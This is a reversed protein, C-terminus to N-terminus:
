CWRLKFLAAIDPKSVWVFHATWYHYEDADWVYPLCQSALWEMAECEQLQQRRWDRMKAGTLENAAAVTKTRRRANRYLREIVEEPPHPPTAGFLGGEIHKFNFDHSM